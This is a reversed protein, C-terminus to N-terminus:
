EKTGEVLHRFEDGDLMGRELLAEAVRGVKDANEALLDAARKLMAERFAFFTVDPLGCLWHAMRLGDNDNGSFDTSPAAARGAAAIKGFTIATSTADRGLDLLESPGDHWCVGDGSKSLEVSHVTVGLLHAVVGHGAEHRALLEM